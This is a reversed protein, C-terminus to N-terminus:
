TSVHACVWLTDWVNTSVWDSDDHFQSRKRNRSSRRPPRKRKSEATLEYMCVHICRHICIYMCAYRFRSAPGRCISMCACMCVHVCADTCAHVCADTCAHICVQFPQRAKQICVDETAGVLSWMGTRHALQGKSNKGAAWVIGDQTSVISFYNVAAVAKAISTTLKVFHTSIGNTPFTGPCVISTTSWVSGDQHLFMSHVYVLELAIFGSLM